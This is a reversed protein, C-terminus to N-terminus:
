VQHRQEDRWWMYSTAAAALLVAVVTAWAREYEDSLDVMWGFVVPASGLGTLFGFGVLGSARGTHGGGAHVVVALMVVANWAAVSSGALVAGVWLLWVRDPGAFVFMSAAAASMLALVGLPLAYHQLRESAGAWVIRGIVGLLGYTGAVLGAGQVSLGVGEEAFLPLFALMAGAGMGMLLGYATMWWVTRSPRFADDVTHEKRTRRRPDPSVVRFTLLALSVPVLVALWVAARWGWAEAAPPLVVGALVVGMYVGSQKVGMTVGRRGVQLRSAILTNTAPNGSGNTLACLAAAVVLGVLSRSTAVVALVGVGVVFILVTMLRGGIRDAIPGAALSTCAGGLAVVSIIVGLDARALGLEVVILPALVPVVSNIQTAVAMTGALVIGFGAMWVRPPRDTAVGAPRSRSSM